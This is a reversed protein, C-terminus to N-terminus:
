EAFVLEGGVGISYVLHRKGFARRTGELVNILWTRVEAQEIAGSRYSIRAGVRDLEALIVQDADCYVALNPNHTVIIVQRHNRATRIAPVLFTSVTENDLNEEPQDLVIPTQSRDVLIFFILLAAGREGPSLQSIEKDNFRLAYHPSLYDVAYLLDYLEERSSRSRLQRDVDDKPRGESDLPRLLGLVANVFAQASQADDFDTQALLARVPEDGGQLFAGRKTQDIHALFTTAFGDNRIVADVRMALGNALLPEKNLYDEIPQFFSRYTDRLAVLDAFLASFQRDREAQLDALTATLNPLAALREKLWELSGESDADGILELRRREWREITEQRVRIDQRRTDLQAVIEAKEKELAEQEQSIRELERASEDIATKIASVREDLPKHNIEYSFILDVSLGLREVDTEAEHSRLQQEIYYRVNDLRKTVATGAQQQLRQEALTAELASRHGIITQVSEDVERIRALHSDDGSPSDSQDAELPAPQNANHAELERKREALRAKLAQIADPQLARELAAIERNLEAIDGGVLRRRERWETTVADILEDLSGKGLRQDEPLWSFVVRKLEREFERYAEEGIDACLTEFYNQPLYRLREPKTSDISQSLGKSDVDGSEWEVDCTFDGADGTRAHRFRRPSLFSLHTEVDADAALALADTLASKGSGKHGIIAVLGPNLEVSADAFWPKGGPTTRTFSVRRVYRTPSERVAIRGPPEQGVFIRQDYEHRAIRLGDFTPQAKIWTMCQGLRNPESSTTWHHADSCHLLRSQVTNAKLKSRSKTFQKETASATFVLDVANITSRKEGISGGSWELQDWELKGVATLYRGNFLNSRELLERINHPEVNYNDVGMKLDSVPSTPPFAAKLRRGLDELRHRIPPGSWVDGENITISTNISTLFEQEITHPDVEDSFIVHFNVRKWKAHGVFRAIRFEIVPLILKINALRGSARAELVRKYGEIELYDNIGIVQLTEPLAELEDIFRDWVNEGGYGQEYSAPTHM